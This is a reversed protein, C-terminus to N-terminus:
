GTCFAKWSDPDDVVHEMGCKACFLHVLNPYSVIVRFEGGGCSGCKVAGLGVVYFRGAEAVVRARQARLKGKEWEGPKPYKMRKASV